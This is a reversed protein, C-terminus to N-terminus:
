LQGMRCTSLINITFPATSEEQVVSYVAGISMLGAVGERQAVEMLLDDWEDFTITSYDTNKTKM